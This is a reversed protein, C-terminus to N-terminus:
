SVGREHEAYRLAIDLRTLEAPQLHNRLHRWVRPYPVGARAALEKVPMDIVRRRNEIEVDLL